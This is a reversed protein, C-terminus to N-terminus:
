LDMVEIRDDDPNTFGKIDFFISLICRYAIIALIITQYLTFFAGFHQSYISSMCPLELYQNNLFPLPLRLTTCTSNLLSQITTLPATVIASLGGSDPVQFDNFFGITENEAETTNSDMVEQHQQQQQQTQQQQQEIIIADTNDSLNVLPSIGSKIIGLVLTDPEEWIYTIDVGNIQTAGGYIPCKLTYIGTTGTEQFSTCWTQGAGTNLYASVNFTTNLRQYQTIAYVSFEVYNATSPITLNFRYQHFITIRNNQAPTETFGYYTPASLITDCSNNDCTINNLIRGSWTDAKVRMPFISMNGIDIDNSSLIYFLLAGLALIAAFRGITRFFSGITWNFIQKM